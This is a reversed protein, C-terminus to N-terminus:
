HGGFVSAIGKRWKMVSYCMKVFDIFIAYAFENAANTLVTDYFVEWGFYLNDSMSFIAFSAIKITITGSFKLSLQSELGLTQYFAGEDNPWRSDM